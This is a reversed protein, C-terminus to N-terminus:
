KNIIIKKLLREQDIQVIIFYIGNPLTRIDIEIKNGIRKSLTNVYKGLVDSINAQMEGKMRQEVVVKESSPNPYILINNQEDDIIGIGTNCPGNFCNSGYPIYPPEKFCILQVFGVDCEYDAVWGYFNYGNWFYGHELDGIGEVWTIPNQFYNNFQPQEFRIRKRWKNGYYMSDVSDVALKRYGSIGYCPSNVLFNFTDGKNLNFDFLLSTDVYFKRNDFYIYNKYQLCSSDFYTANNGYLKQCYKNGIVTDGRVQFNYYGFVYTTM